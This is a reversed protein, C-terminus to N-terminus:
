HTLASTVIIGPPGFHYSNTRINYPVGIEVSNYTFLVTTM